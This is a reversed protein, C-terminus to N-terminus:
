WPRKKELWGQAKWYDYDKPCSSWNKLQIGRYMMFMFKRSLSVKPKKNKNLKNAIKDLKKHLSKKNKTPVSNWQMSQSRQCCIQIDSIGWNTLSARIDKAASKMGGGAGLSIIVAKKHYLIAKPRHVGWWTFFHDLLSKMPGTTRLCYVPTTFILLDAEIIAKKIPEIYNFHPCKEEGSLMCNYCGLCFVPLDKPLTFENIVEVHDLKDILLRGAHYSSERHQQGHIITVIM